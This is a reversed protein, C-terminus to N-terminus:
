EVNWTAFGYQWRGVHAGSGTSPLWIFGMNGTPAIIGPVVASIDAKNCLDGSDDFLSIDNSAVYGHTQCWAYVGSTTPLSGTALVTIPDSHLDINVGYGIFSQSNVYDLIAVIGTFDCPTSDDSVFFCYGTIPDGSSRSFIAATENYNFSPLWTAGQWVSFGAFNGQTEVTGDHRGSTVEFDFRPVTPTLQAAGLEGCGFQAGHLAVTAHYSGEDYYDIILKGLSCNEVLRGTQVSQCNGGSVVETFDEPPVILGGGGAFDISLTTTSLVEGGTITIEDEKPNGEHALSPM